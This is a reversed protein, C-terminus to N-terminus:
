GGSLGKRRALAEMAVMRNGGTEARAWLADRATDDGAVSALADLAHLRMRGSPHHTAFREALDLAEEGGLGVAIHIFAESAGHALQGAIEGKSVDFRYQDLWGQAGGTRLINLSVSLADAPMQAHVDVHARYFHIDGEGLTFRGTPTLGIPECLYGDIDGYDAEYCDSQYGPGFYGLTLFDFNHDHPLGYVFASAGSNRMVPENHSPWISARLLCSEGARGLMIAQPGYANDDADECHRRSLEDLILDGLFERNNGLQRLVLATAQVSERDCPSFIAGALRERAEDLCIAGENGVDVVLPM